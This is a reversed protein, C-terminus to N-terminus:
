RTRPIVYSYAAYRIESWAPKQPFPTGPFLPRDIPTFKIRIRIKSRGRTLDRGILFEDDRFRRNSTQVNHQTRGLEEKPNSYVCTNAGATYWVGAPKWEDGAQVFM